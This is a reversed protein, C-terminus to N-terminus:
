NSGKEENQVPAFDDSKKKRGRKPTQQKKVNKEQEKFDATIEAMIKKLDFKGQKGKKPETSM